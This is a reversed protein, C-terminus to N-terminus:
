ALIEVAGDDFIYGGMKRPPVKAEFLRNIENFTRGKLEPCYFYSGVSAVLALGGFVFGVKGRMNGENPNIMYPMTFNMIIGLIGQTATALGTTKARLAPSSTEGLLVFAIAGITLFYIFAYIVTCAAQVWKAAGTPVVDM